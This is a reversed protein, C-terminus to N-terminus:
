ENIVRSPLVMNFMEVVTDSQDMVEGIVEYSVSNDTYTWYDNGNMSPSAMNRCINFHDYLVGEIACQSLGDPPCAVLMPQSIQHSGADIHSVEILQYNGTPQIKIRELMLKIEKIIAGALNIVEENSGQFPSYLIKIDAVFNDESCHGGFCLEFNNNLWNSFDKLDRVHQAFEDSVVGGNAISTTCIEYIRQQTARTFFDFDLESM